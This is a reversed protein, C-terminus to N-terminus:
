RGCKNRMRECEYTGCAPLEWWIDSQRMFIYINAMVQNLLLLWNKAGLLEIIRTRPLSHRLWKWDHFHITFLFLNYKNTINYMILMHGISFASRYTYKTCHCRIMIIFCFYQCTMSHAYLNNEILTVVFFWNIRDTNPIYHQSHRISRKTYYPQVEQSKKLIM